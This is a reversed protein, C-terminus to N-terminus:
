GFLYKLLAMFAITGVTFGIKIPGKHTPIELSFALQSAVHKKM